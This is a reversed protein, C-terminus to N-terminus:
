PLRFVLIYQYPLADHLEKDLKWGAAEMEARVEDPPIKMSDPPGKPLDGMEYDVIVLRGDPPLSGAVGSFYASRGQVHHYTNVLLIRDVPEPLLPDDPTGLISFLNALKERRARENLYRVMDPEIDVGWVRGKPVRPAIRVPFYGTASGIDAVVHDPELALAELVVEPKQWEARAEDEFREAWREADEFGHHPRHSDQDEAQEEHAHAGPTHPDVAQAEPQAAALGPWTALLLPLLLVLLARLRPRM